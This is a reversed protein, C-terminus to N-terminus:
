RASWRGTLRMAVLAGLSLADRTVQGGGYWVILGIGISQILERDRTSFARWEGFGFVLAGAARGQELLPVVAGSATPVGSPELGPHLAEWQARAREPDVTGINGEMPPNIVDAVRFYAPTNMLVRGPLPIAPLDAVDFRDTLPTEM